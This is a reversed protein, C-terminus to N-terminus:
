RPSLRQEGVASAANPAGLPDAPYKKLLENIAKSHSRRMAKLKNDIWFTKLVGDIERHASEVKRAAM